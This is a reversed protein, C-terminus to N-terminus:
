DLPAFRTNRRRMEDLMLLKIVYLQAANNEQLVFLPDTGGESGGDRIAARPRWLKFFRLYECIRGIQQVKRYLFFPMGGGSDM